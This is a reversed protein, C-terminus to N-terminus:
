RSLWRAMSIGLVMAVAQRLVARGELLQEVPVDFMWWTFLADFVLYLLAVNLCYRWCTDKAVIALRSYVLVAALLLFLQRLGGDLAVSQATIQHSQWWLGTLVGWAIGSGTMLLFLVIAAVLLRWWPLPMASKSPSFTPSTM